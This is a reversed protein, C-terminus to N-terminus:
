ALMPPNHNPLFRRPAGPSMCYRNETGLADAFTNTFCIYYETRSHLRHGSADRTCFLPPLHDRCQRESRELTSMATFSPYKFSSLPDDPLEINTTTHHGLRHRTINTQLLSVAKITILRADTLEINAARALTSYLAQAQSSFMGVTDLYFHM